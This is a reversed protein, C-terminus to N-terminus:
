NLIEKCLEETDNCKFSKEDINLTFNLKNDKDFHYEYTTSSLKKWSNSLFKSIDFPDTKKQLIKNNHYALLGKKIINIDNKCEQKKSTFNINYLKPIFISTLIALIVITFIFEIISFARYIKSIKLKIHYDM